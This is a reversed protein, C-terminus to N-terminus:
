WIRRPPRPWIRRSPERRTGALTWFCHPRWGFRHAPECEPRTGQRDRRRGSPPTSPDAETAIVLVPSATVTDPIPLVPHPMTWFTRRTRRVSRPSRNVLVRNSDGRSGPRDSASGWWITMHSPCPWHSAVGLFPFTERKQGYPHLGGRHPGATTAHRGRVSADHAM